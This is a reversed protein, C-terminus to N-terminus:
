GLGGRHPKAGVDLFPEGADVKRRPAAFVGQRGGPSTQGLPRVVASQEADHGHGVQLATLQSESLRRGLPRDRGGGLRGSRQDHEPHHPSTHVVRLTGRCGELLRHPSVGSERLGAQEESLGIPRLAPRLLGALHQM